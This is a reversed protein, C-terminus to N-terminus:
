KPTRTPTSPRQPWIEVPNKKLVAEILKSHRLKCRRDNRKWWGVMTRDNWNLNAAKAIMEDTVRVVGMRFALSKYEALSQKRKQATPDAVSETETQDPAESEAPFLASRIKAMESEILEGASAEFESGFLTRERENFRAESTDDWWHDKAKLLEVVTRRFLGAADLVEVKALHEVHRNTAIPPMRKRISRFFYDVVFAIWDLLVRKLDEVLWRVDARTDVETGLLGPPPMGPRDARYTIRKESKFHRKKWERVSNAASWLFDDEDDPAETKPIFPKL